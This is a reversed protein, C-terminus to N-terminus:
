EVLRYEGEFVFGLKTRWCSEPLEGFLTQFIRDTLYTKYFLSMQWINGRSFGGGFRKTLGAALREILTARYEARQEGSQEFEVIHPWILWYATTTVANVSGAVSRGATNIFGAM